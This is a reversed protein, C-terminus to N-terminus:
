EGPKDYEGGVDSTREVGSFPDQDRTLPTRNLLESTGARGLVPM